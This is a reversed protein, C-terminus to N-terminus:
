EDLRRYGEMLLSSTPITINDPPYESAPEITFVGDDEWGIVRHVADMGTIDGCRAHVIKGDRIYIIANELPDRELKIYVSRRSMALVQMLDGFPLEALTGRLGKRRAPDEDHQVLVAMSKNIRAAIIDYNFPPVFVDNFGSDLLSMILSPNHTSTFAYLLITSNRKVFRSFRQAYDPYSDYNLIIIDPRQREYLHQAENFDRIEVIRYGEERLHIVLRSSIDGVESIIFIDKQRDCGGRSASREMLRIYRELVESSYFRGEMRRLAEKTGQLARAPDGSGESVATHRYWVLALIQSALSIEPNKETFRNLSVRESLLQLLSHLCNEIDWPFYFSKTRELSVDFEDFIRKCAGMSGPAPDDGSKRVPSLLMAAIQLGDVAMRGLGFSNALERIENCISTYPITEAREECRHESMRQLLRMLSKAMRDYPVPNDMLASCISSFFSIEAGCLSIDGNRMWQMFTEEMDRSVLVHEFSYQRLAYVIQDRRSRVKLHFGEREFIPVLFNKLFITGTVMLIYRPEASSSESGSESKSTCEGGPAEEEFLDPLEIIQNASPDAPKRHYHRRIMGRLVSEVAVYPKVEGAGTRQRVLSIVGANDPDLMALHLTRTKRDFRFPFVVHKEALEGPVLAVVEDAVVKGSFRIAPIGFHTALAKLLQSETLFKYYLLHSGLRGDHSKQRLLAMKLQKESVLGKRLLISDLRERSM